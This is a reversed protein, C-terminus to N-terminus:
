RIQFVLGNVNRGAIDGPCRAKVKTFAFQAGPKASRIAKLVKGTFRNGTGDIPIPDQRKPTYYMTYSQIACRADFDFNELQPILGLQAKFEGSKIIGDTKGALRVVPNPIRKVRFEKTYNKNKKTDTVTITTSGQKTATVIYNSTSKKNLKGGSGSISVKQASTPIGAAAVTVPNDVGIYFVNMKDASVNVSAAGVEYSFTEEM